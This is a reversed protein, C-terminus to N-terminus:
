AIRFSPKEYHYGVTIFVTGGFATVCSIVPATTSPPQTTTGTSTLKWCPFGGVFDAVLTRYPEATTTSLAGLTISNGSEGDSYVLLLTNSGSGEFGIRIFDIVPLNYNARTSTVPIPVIATNPDGTAYGILNTAM